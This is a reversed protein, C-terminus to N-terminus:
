RKSELAAVNWDLLDARSKTNSENEFCTHSARARSQTHCRPKHADLVIGSEPRFGVLPLDFIHESHLIFDRVRDHLRDGFRKLETVQAARTGNLLRSTELRVIEIQEAPM